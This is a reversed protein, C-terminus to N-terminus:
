FWHFYIREKSALSKLEDLKIKGVYTYNNTNITLKEDSIYMYLGIYTDSSYGKPLSEKGLLYSKLEDNAAFYISPEQTIMAINMVKVNQFFPLIKDFPLRAFYFTPEEVTIQFRDSNNLIKQLQEDMISITRMYAFGINYIEVNLDSNIRLYKIVKNKNNSVKTFKM